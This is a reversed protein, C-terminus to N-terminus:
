RRSPRVMRQAVGLRLQAQRDPKPLGQSSSAVLSPALALTVNRFQYHRAVFQLGFTSEFNGFSNSHNGQCALRGEGRPKVNFLSRRARAAQGQGQVRNFTQVRPMKVLFACAKIGDCTPLAVVCIPMTAVAACIIAM